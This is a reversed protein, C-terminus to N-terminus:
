ANDNETAGVSPSKENMEFGQAWGDLWNWHREESEPYPNADTKLEERQAKKGAEVAQLRRTARDLAALTESSMNLDIRM